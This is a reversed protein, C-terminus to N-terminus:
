LSLTDFFCHQPVLAPVAPVTVNQRIPVQGPICQPEPAPALNPDLDLMFHFFFLFEFLSLGIKQSIISRRVNFLCSKKCLKNQQFVTSFITQFRFRFRFNGFDSDSGYYIM